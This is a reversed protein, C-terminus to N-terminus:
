PPLKGQLWNEFATRGRRLSSRSAALMRASMMLSSFTPDPLRSLSIQLALLLPDTESKLTLTLPHSPPHYQGECLIRLCGHRALMPLFSPVSLDCVQKVAAARQSEEDKDLQEQELAQM